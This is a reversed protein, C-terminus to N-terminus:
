VTCELSIQELIRRSDKLSAVYQAVSLAHFRRGGRWPGADILQADNQSADAREDPAAEEGM